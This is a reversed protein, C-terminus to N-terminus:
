KLSILSIERAQNTFLDCSLVCFVLSNLSCEDSPFGIIVLSKEKLKNKLYNVKQM